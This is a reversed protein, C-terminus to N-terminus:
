GDGQQVKLTHILPEQHLTFGMASAITQAREACEICYEPPPSQGPWFSRVSPLNNCNKTSCTKEDAM